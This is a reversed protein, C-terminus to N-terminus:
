FRLVARIPRHDSGVDPLVEGRLVETDPRVLLHDIQSHPFPAPWTRGRVARRWGPMLSRVAPGWFNCDGGVLAPVGPPAVARALRRLQIVPGHPLKSTAHLSVVRLPTGGVDIEVELATRLPSPDAFTPGIAIAGLRRMPLRTLVAIGSTGEGDPRLHPWRTGLTARGTLEHELTFGLEAAADDVAGREGDPRWVEQLLVVDADLKKLAGAVDYPQPPAHQVRRVGYHLNLSAVSLETM